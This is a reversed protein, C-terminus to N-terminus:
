PLSKDLMKLRQHRYSVRELSNWDRECCSAFWILRRALSQKKRIMPISLWQDLREKNWRVNLPTVSNTKHQEEVEAATPSGWGNKAQQKMLESQRKIENELGKTRCGANHFVRVWDKIVELNTM